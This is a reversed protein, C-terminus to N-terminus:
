FLLLEDVSSQKSRNIKIKEAATKSTTEPKSVGDKEHLASPIKDM